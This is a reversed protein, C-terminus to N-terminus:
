LVGQLAAVVRMADVHGAVDHARVIQAGSLACVVSAAISSPDRESAIKRGTIRGLFGKRSPGMLIPSNRFVGQLAKSRM